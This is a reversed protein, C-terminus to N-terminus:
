PRGYLTHGIGLTMLLEFFVGPVAVFHIVIRNIINHENSSRSAYVLPLWSIGSLSFLSM